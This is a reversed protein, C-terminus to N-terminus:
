WPNNDAYRRVPRRRADAVLTAPNELSAVVVLREVEGNLFARLFKPYDKFSVCGNSDGNPGLLYSHALMGDRGLMSREDVPNLRVAQVGHFLRERLTLHYVNPPTPGRNKVHVYRPDDMKDGLGSHAELRDGNPMYVTRATIDYVATRSERDPLAPSKNHAQRRRASDRYISAPPPTVMAIRPADEGAPARERKLPYSRPLPLPTTQEPDRTSPDAVAPPSAPAVAPTLEAVRTSDAAPAADENSPADSVASPPSSSAGQNTHNVFRRPVIAEAGDLRFGTATAHAWKIDFMSIDASPIKAQLSGTVQAAMALKPGGGAIAFAARSAAARSQLNSNGTVTTGVLWAAALFVTTVVASAAALSGLGIVLVQVLHRLARRCEGLLLRHGGLLLRRGGFSNVDHFTATADTM